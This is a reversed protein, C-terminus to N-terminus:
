SPILVSGVKEKVEVRWGGVQSFWNAMSDWFHPKWPDTGQSMSCFLALCLTVQVPVHPVRSVRFCHKLHSLFFHPFPSSVSPQGPAVTTLRRPALDSLARHYCCTSLSHLNPSKRREPVWEYTKQFAHSVEIVKCWRAWVQVNLM